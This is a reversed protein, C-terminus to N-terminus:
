YETQKKFREYAFRGGDENSSLARMFNCCYVQKIKKDNRALNFVNFVSFSFSRKDKKVKDVM